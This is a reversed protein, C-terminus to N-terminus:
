AKRLMVDFGMWHSSIAPTKAWATKATELTPMAMKKGLKEPQQKVKYSYRV